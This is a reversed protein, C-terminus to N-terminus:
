LDLATNLQAEHEEISHFKATSNVLSLIGDLGNTIMNFAEEPNNSISLASFITNFSSNITTNWAENETKAIRILKTRQNDMEALANVTLRRIQAEKLKYDDMHKLVDRATLIAGCALTTIISGLVEGVIKGIEAGIVIGSGPLVSGGVIAGIFLGLERGVSGGVMSAVMTGGKVGIESVFEKGDIEGNVYKIASDKVITSVQVIQAWENQGIIDSLLQNRGGCVAVKVVGKGIGKGAESLSKDGKFVQCINHVTDATLPIVSEVLANKAGLTFEDGINKATRLAFDKHMAVDAVIKQKAMIVKSETNMKSNPDLIIEWDNKDGKSTNDAKSLIRYNTEKNVIEKVDEDKLFKNHRAIRHVDHIADVHDTEASHKAWARSVIEGDSNKNHYKNKAANQSKHLIEGSLPDVITKKGDFSKEKFNAKGKASDYKATRIESNYEQTVGMETSTDQKLAAIDYLTDIAKQVANEEKEYM